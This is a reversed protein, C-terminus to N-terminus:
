RRYSRRRRDGVAQSVADHHGESIGVLDAGKPEILGEALTAVHHRCCSNQFLSRCRLEGAALRAPAVWGGRQQASSGLYAGAWLRVEFESPVLLWCPLLSAM